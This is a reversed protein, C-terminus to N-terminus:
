YLSSSDRDVNFNNLRLSGRVDAFTFSARSYPSEQYEWTTCTWVRPPKGCVSTSVNTPDGFMSRIENSSMGAHVKMINETSFTSCATLLACALLTVALFTYVRM